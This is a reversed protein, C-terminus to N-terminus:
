QRRRLTIKSSKHFLPRIHIFLVLIVLMFQIILFLVWLRVDSYTNLINEITNHSRILKSHISVPLMSEIWKPYSLTIQSLIMTILTILVWTVFFRTSNWFNRLEKSHESIWDLAWPILFPFLLFSIRNERVIALCIHTSLVLVIALPTYLYLRYRQNSLFIRVKLLEWLRLLALLWIVGFTLFLFLLADLPYRFNFYSGGEYPDYFQPGLLLRLFLFVMFSPFTRIIRRQVTENGFFLYCVPVVLTTDRTMVGLTTFLIFYSPNSSTTAILSLVVLLYGLPDERTYVPYNYAFLIPFSSLFLLCGLLRQKISFSLVELWKWLAFVASCTFIFSWGVFSWYFTWADQPKILSSTNKVICYFLVRYKMSPWSHNEWLYPQDPPGGVLGALSSSSFLLTTSSTIHRYFLIFTLFILLPIIYWCILRKEKLLEM